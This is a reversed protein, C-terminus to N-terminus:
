EDPSRATPHDPSQYGLWRAVPYPPMFRDCFPRAFLIIAATLLVATWLLLLGEAALMMGSYLLDAREM